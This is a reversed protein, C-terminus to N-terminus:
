GEASVLGGKEGRLNGSLQQLSGAPMQYAGNPEWSRAGTVSLSESPGCLARSPSARSGRPLNGENEAGALTNCGSLM